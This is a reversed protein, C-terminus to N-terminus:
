VACHGLEGGLVMQILATQPKQVYKIIKYYFFVHFGLSITSRNLTSYCALSCGQRVYVNMFENIGVMIYRYPM